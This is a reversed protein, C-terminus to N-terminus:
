TAEVLTCNSEALAIYSPASSGFLDSTYSAAPKNTNTRLRRIFNGWNVINDSRCIAEVEKIIDAHLMTPEALRIFYPSALQATFSVPYTKGHSNSESPDYAVVASVQSAGLVKGTGFNRLTHPAVFMGSTKGLPRDSNCVLAYHNEKRRGSPLTARSTVFTHRPLPRTRGANDTWATWLVLEGPEVDIEKPKSQMPSFVADLREGNSTALSANAGLSQGIGWLFVGNGLRREWEKRRVIMELGEGSETGMKTWCFTSPLEGPLM